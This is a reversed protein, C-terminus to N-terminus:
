DIAIPLIIEFVTYGRDYKKLNVTGKLSLIAKQVIYLGLGLGQSRESGKVFMKFVDDKVKEDIGL